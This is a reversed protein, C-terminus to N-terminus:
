SVCQEEVEQQMQQVPQFAAQIVQREEATPQKAMRQIHQLIAQPLRCYFELAMKQATAELLPELLNLDIGLPPQKETENAVSETASSEVSETAPTAVSPTAPLTPVLTGAQQLVAKAQPTDTRNAVELLGAVTWLTSGDQILWHIGEVLQAKERSKRSRLTGESIGLLEASQATSYIQDSVLPDNKM